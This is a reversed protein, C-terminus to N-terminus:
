PESVCETATDWARREYLWCSVGFAYISASRRAKVRNGLLAVASVECM